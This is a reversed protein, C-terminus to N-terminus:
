FAVSRSSDTFDIFFHASRIKYAYGNVFSMFFISENFFAFVTRGFRRVPQYSIFVFFAVYGTIGIFAGVRYCVLNGYVEGSIAFFEARELFIFEFVNFLAVGTYVFQAFFFGLKRKCVSIRLPLNFFKRIREVFSSLFYHKCGGM